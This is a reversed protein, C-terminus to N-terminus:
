TMNNKKSVLLLDNHFQLRHPNLLTQLFHIEVCTRLLHIPLTKNIQKKLAVIRWCSDLLTPLSLVSDNAFGATIRAPVSPLKKDNKNEKIKNQKWNENRQNPSFVNLVPM